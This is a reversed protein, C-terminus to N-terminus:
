SEIRARAPDRALVQFQAADVQVDEKPPLGAANIRRKAPRVAAEPFGAIREALREVYPVLEEDPVAKNVM